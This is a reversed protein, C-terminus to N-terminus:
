YHYFITIKGKKDQLDFVTKRIQDGSPKISLPDLEFKQTMKKIVVEEEKNATWNTKM